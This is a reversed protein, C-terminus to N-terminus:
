IHYEIRTTTLPDPYPYSRYALHPSTPICALHNQHYRNFPLISSIPARKELALQYTSGTEIGPVLHGLLITFFSYLDCVLALCNLYQVYLTFIGIVYERERWRM